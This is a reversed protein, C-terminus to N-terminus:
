HFDTLSSQRETGQGAGDVTGSDPGSDATAAENDDTDDDNGWSDLSAQNQDAYTLNSVMVGLKRVEEDHFEELLEMAVVEVLDPDDVPGSLTKRRTHKEFPPTVVKIGITRYMSDHQRAREAVGHALTKIQKHQREIDDTAETFALDRLFSKPPDAPTVERDDEGRVYRYIKEGREGFRDRLTDVDAEALDGATEIGAQRLERATEPGLDHIEELDLPALFDRVEDPRVIHLGDPKDYDSAIKATSMNPAVGISAVVGVEDQIRQKMQEAYEGGNDWDTRDTVDLYAEDISVERVTTATDHMIGKVASSISEYFEIDVPFYHGVVDDDGAQSALPLQTIADDIPDTSNIGHDRAEYSATAVVGHSEGEEYGMGIIVPENELDPHRLRECAAYFCDLDVHFIIRPADSDTPNDFVTPLNRGSM